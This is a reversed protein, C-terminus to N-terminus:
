KQESWSLLARVQARLTNFGNALSRVAGSSVAIATFSESLRTPGRQPPVDARSVRRCRSSRLEEIADFAQVSVVGRERSQRTARRREAIGGIDAERDPLPPGPIPLECARVRARRLRCTPHVAAARCSPPGGSAGPTDGLLSRANM